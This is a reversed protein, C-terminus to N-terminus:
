HSSFCWPRAIHLKKFSSMLSLLSHTMLFLLINQNDLLMLSRIFMIQSAMNWVVFLILIISIVVTIVSRTKSLEIAALSPNSGPHKRQFYCSTGVLKAVFFLPTMNSYTKWSGHNCKKNCCGRKCGIGQFGRGGCSGVLTM